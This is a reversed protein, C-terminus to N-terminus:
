IVLLKSSTSPCTFGERGKYERREEERRERGGEKRERGGERREGGEGNGWKEM